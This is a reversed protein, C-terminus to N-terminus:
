LLGQRIKGPENEKGTVVVASAAMNGAIEVLDAVSNLGPLPDISLQKGDAPM